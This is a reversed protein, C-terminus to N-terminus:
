GVMRLLLSRDYIFVYQSHLDIAGEGSGRFPTTAFPVCSSSSPTRSDTRRAHSWCALLVNQCFSTIQQLPRNVLYNHNRAKVDPHRTNDSIAIATVSIHNDTRPYSPTSDINNPLTARHRLQAANSLTTRTAARLPRDGYAM